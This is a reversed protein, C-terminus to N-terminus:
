ERSCPGTRDRFDALGHDADEFALLDVDDERFSLGATPLRREVRAVPVFGPRHDALEALDEGGVAPDDARGAGARGHAADEERVDIRALLDQSDAAPHDLEALEEDIHEAHGVGAGAERVLHGHVDAAVPPPFQADDLM